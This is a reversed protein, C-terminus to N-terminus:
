FSQGISLYVAPRHEVGPGVPMAIDVRGIGPYIGFLNSHFRFGIGIDHRYERFRFTDRKDSVMGTDAFLAVQLTHATLLGLFDKDLDHILPFRYEATFLAINEGRDDAKSFGRAGNIGGLFFLKHEPKEGESIGLITRLAISEKKNIPFEKIATLQLKYYSYDSGLDKTSFELSTEIGGDRYILLPSVVYKGDGYRSFEGSLKEFGISAYLSKNKWRYEYGGRIGDLEFWHYYNFIFRNNPDYFRQLSVQINAEVTYTQFDYSLRFRHLLFKWRQPTRNNHRYIDSLKKEPDIEIINIPSRTYRKLVFEEGGGDWLIKDEDGEADKMYLEVPEIAKGNKGIAIETLYRDEDQERKIEKLYYDTPPIEKLWQNYFWNLDKKAIDESIKRFPMSSGIYEKIIEKFREEGILDRLKSFVRGGELRRLNFFRINESVGKHSENNFYANRYPLGPSHLVQDVAPIFSFLKISKALDPREPYKEKLYLETSYEAMGEAVWGEDKLIREWFITYLSKVLQIEHFRMLYPYVKFIRNNVLIVDEGAIAMDSYLYVEGVRVPRIGPDPFSRRFFDSAHNLVESAKEIYWEDKKLFFFEFPITGNMTEKKVFRKSVILTPSKIDTAEFEFVRKDMDYEDKIMIGTHLINYFSPATFRVTFDSSPLEGDPSYSIIPHWGGNLTTIGDHHGFLGLREPIKTIFEIRILSLPKGRPRSGQVARSLEGFDTFQSGDLPKLELPNGEGDTISIISMLGPDFRVPYSEPAAEKQYINPYLILSPTEMGDLYVNLFGHITNRDPDFTADISYKIRAEATIPLIFLIIM